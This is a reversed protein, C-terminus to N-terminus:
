VYQRRISSLGTEDKGEFVPCGQKLALICTGFPDSESETAGSSCSSTCEQYVPVRTKVDIKWAVTTGVPGSSTIACYHKDPKAKDLKACNYYQKGGHFFPFM